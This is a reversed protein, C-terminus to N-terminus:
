KGGERKRGQTKERKIRKVLFHEGEGLVGGSFWKYVHANIFCHNKQKVKAQYVSRIYVM